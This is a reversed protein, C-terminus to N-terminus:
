FRALAVRKRCLKSAAILDPSTTKARGTDISRFGDLIAPWDYPKAPPPDFGYFRALMASALDINELSSMIALQFGRDANSMASDCDVYDMCESPSPDAPPQPISGEIIPDHCNHTSTYTAPELVQSPQDDIGNHHGTICCAMAPASMM